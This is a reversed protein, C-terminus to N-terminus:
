QKGSNMTQLYPNWGHSSWRRCNRAVGTPPIQTVESAILRGTSVQIQPLWVRRGSDDTAFELTQDVDPFPSLGAAIWYDGSCHSSTCEPETVTASPSNLRCCRDRNEKSSTGFAFTLEKLVITGRLFDGPWNYGIKTAWCGYGRLSHRGETGKGAKHVGWNYTPVCCTGWVGIKHTRPYHVAAQLRQVVITQLFTSYCGAYGM